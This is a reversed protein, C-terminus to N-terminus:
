SGGLLETFSPTAAFPDAPGENQRRAVRQALERGARSIRKPLGAGPDEASAAWDDTAAFV